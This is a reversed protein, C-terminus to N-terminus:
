SQWRDDGEVITLVFFRRCLPPPPTPPSPEPPPPPNVDFFILCRGPLVLLCDAFCTQCRNHPINSCIDLLGAVQARRRISVEHYLFDRKACAVCPRVWGVGAREIERSRSPRSRTTRARFRNYMDHM